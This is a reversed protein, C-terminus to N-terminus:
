VSIFLSIRVARKSSPSSTQRHETFSTPNGDCEGSADISSSSVAEGKLACARLQSVSDFFNYIHGKTGRLLSGFSAGSAHAGQPSHNPLPQKSHSSQNSHVSSTLTSQSVNMLLTVGGEEAM